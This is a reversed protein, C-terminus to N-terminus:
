FRKLKFRLLKLPLSAPAHSRPYRNINIPKLGALSGDDNVGLLILGGASNSFAVMEAALQNPSNINILRLNSEVVKVM